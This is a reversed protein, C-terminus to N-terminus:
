ISAVQTSTFSACATVTATPTRGLADLEQV